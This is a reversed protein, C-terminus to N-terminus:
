RAHQEVDPSHGVESTGRRATSVPLKAHEVGTRAAIMSATARSTEGPQGVIEVTRRRLRPSRDAGAGAQSGVEGHSRGLARSAFPKAGPVGAREGIVHGTGVTHAGRDLQGRCADRVLDAAPRRIPDLDDRRAASAVMRDEPFRQHLPQTFVAADEM